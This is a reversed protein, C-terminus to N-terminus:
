AVMQNSLTQSNSAQFMLDTNVNNLAEFTRRMTLAEYTDVTVTFGIKVDQPLFHVCLTLSDGVAFTRIDAIGTSAVNTNCNYASLAAAETLHLFLTVGLLCAKAASGSVFSLM